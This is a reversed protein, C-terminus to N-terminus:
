DRTISLTKLHNDRQQCLNQSKTSSRKSLKLNHQLAMSDLKEVRCSTSCELSLGKHKSM